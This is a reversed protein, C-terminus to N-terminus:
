PSQSHQMNTLVNIWTKWFRSSKMRLSLMSSVTRLRCGVGCHGSALGVSCRHSTTSHSTQLFTCNFFPCCNNLAIMDAHILVEPSHKWCRVPDRGVRCQTRDLLLLTYSLLPHCTDIQIHILCTITIQDPPLEMKLLHSWSWCSHPALTCCLRAQIGLTVNGDQKNKKAWLM